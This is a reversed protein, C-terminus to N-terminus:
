ISAKTTLKQATEEELSQIDGCGMCHGELKLIQNQTEIPFFLCEICGWNISCKVHSLTGRNKAIVSSNTILQKATNISQYLRNGTAHSLLSHDAPWQSQLASEIPLQCKKM